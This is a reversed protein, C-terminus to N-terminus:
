EALMMVLLQIDSGIANKPLTRQRAREVAEDFSLGIDEAEIAILERLQAQTLVGDELAQIIEDPVPRAHTKM